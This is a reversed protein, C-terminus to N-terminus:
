KMQALWEDGYPSPLSGLTVEEGTDVRIVPMEKILDLRAPGGVFTMEGAENHSDRHRFPWAVKKKIRDALRPALDNRVFFANIGNITTGLFTYGRKEALYRVAAISAGFYAGSYHADLRSFDARYPVTIPQTDGLIPNIEMILIAADLLEIAELVWYDNGDIDISLIGLDSGFGNEGLLENINERTIFAPVASLDHRWYLAETRVHAMHDKSGDMVLGKWNRNQLLFRTNAEMFNEVGFEVFRTPVDGVHHVLWDIIGDEGFQSFVQFEADALTELKGMQRVQWSAMRGQLLQQRELNRHVISFNGFLGGMWEPLRVVNELQPISPM